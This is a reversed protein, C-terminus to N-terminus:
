RHGLLDNGDAAAMTNIPKPTYKYTPTDTKPPFLSSPCIIERSVYM